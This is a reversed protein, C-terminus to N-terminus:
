QQMINLADEVHEPGIGHAQAFLELVAEPSHSQPSEAKRKTRESRGVIPKVDLVIGNNDAWRHAKDHFREFADKGGLKRMSAHVRVRDGRKPEQKKITSIKTARVEIFRVAAHAVFALEKAGNIHWVGPQFDDGFQIPHPAGLYQVGDVVQPAHIDGAIKLADSDKISKFVPDGGPIVDGSSSHAGEFHQHCVVLEPSEHESRKLPEPEGRTHPIFETVGIGPVWVSDQKWVPVINIKEPAVVKVHDFVRILPFDGDIYDHNGKLLFVRCSTASAMQMVREVLKCIFQNTHHDKIDTIDGAIIISNAKKVKAVTEIYDFIEWRYEHDPRNDLHLDATAIVSM